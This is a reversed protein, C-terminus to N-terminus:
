EAEIKVLADSFVKWAVDDFLCFQVRQVSTLRGEMGKVARIMLNACATIPFGGVGTGFAPFAVSKFKHTEALLLSAITAQRIFTDRTRLDQGMVAAHIVGKFPLRGAGTFVAEGPMVPGKKMAEEEIVLGGAAKIAGAVGSGMWFNNNAANVIAETDAKTIDGRTIEIVLPM